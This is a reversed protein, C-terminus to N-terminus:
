RLKSREELAAELQMPMLKDKPRPLGRESGAFLSVNRYRLFDFGGTLGIASLHTSLEAKTEPNRASARGAGITIGLRMRRLHFDLDMGGMIRTTPLPAFGDASLAESLAPLRAEREAAWFGFTGAWRRHEVSPARHWLHAEHGL